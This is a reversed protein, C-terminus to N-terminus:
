RAQRLELEALLDDFILNWFRPGLVSRQQCGKMVPKSVAENKGAIKM